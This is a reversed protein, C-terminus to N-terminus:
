GGYPNEGTDSVERVKVAGRKNEEVQQKQKVVITRTAEEHAHSLDINTQEVTDAPITSTTKVPLEEPLNSKDTHMRSPYKSTNSEDKNLRHYESTSNPEGKSVIPHKSIVIPSKSTNETAKPTEQVASSAPPRPDERKAIKTSRAFVPRDRAPREPAVRRSNYKETVNPTKSSIPNKPLPATSLSPPLVSTRTASIEEQLVDPPGQSNMAGPTTVTNESPQPAVLTKLEMEHSGEELPRQEAVVPTDGVAAIVDSSAPTDGVAAIVDSSAPLQDQARSPAGMSSTAVKTSRAFVPRDRAHRDPAVRRSSPAFDSVNAPTVAITNKSPSSSPPPSSSVLTPTTHIEEQLLPDNFHLSPRRSNVSDLTTVQNGDSVASMDSSPQPMVVSTLQTGFPVEEDNRRQAGDVDPTRQVTAVIESSAPPRDQAQADGQSAAGMSSKAIKSRAFVSRDRAPREPAVRRSPAFDGVNAPTVAISSSTGLAPRPIVNSITTNVHTVDALPPSGPALPTPPSVDPSRERSDPHADSSGEATPQGAEEHPVPSPDTDDDDDSSAPPRDQAQADGQSAAGVSSKVIKSPAFVPRDRAPREPAVRRSPAFDSVNAPTVAISSSTGLAPRPIVNSITTNVHTVDALPPSGPALPTPPSVDPSRERSDPHADSSGEATPQGAEEHPVPSPPVVAVDSSAPPRDQAQADGQSAAGMSSRATKSSAFVPRDRAPREPAVRRSPAFDGVNAPTVAISSSTGLAPRPIVNSITTNVHTVPRAPPVVHDTTQSVDPPRAQTTPPADSEDHLQRGAEEHPVPSPDTDDDDDSSAPLPDQAQADGQSAAGMSSRATKSSAFVPRDRMPREPAVRRSPAFDGVNAPTVAISSSTGLASRPIVKSITTNVLTVPHAPPVDHDTTQSVDPPRAQTTPPANSGEAPPQGAEETSVSSPPVVVVDSSAPLPDQAQADGQSAAGMSSKAIKSRAFVPRDRAPREPAVRRSPAFDGVNAPTVAISSSTGLAPRPIVNSITTNVHTVDAPPPSDPAPRPGPRVADGEEEEIHGPTQSPERQLQDAGDPAAEDPAVPEPTYYHPVDGDGQAVAEPSSKTTLARTFLPRDTSKREPAVRRSPAFDRINVPTVRVENTSEDEHRVDIRLPDLETDGNVERNLPLPTDEGRNDNSPTAGNPYHPKVGRRIRESGDIIPTEPDTDPTDLDPHSSEADDQSASDNLTTQGPLKSFLPRDTAPREPAVRRSPAFDRINVPTVRVENTSEDEHPVDIRLPDLETDGNVERNLPLPTDEGRNDNSPTAGNPYHPKVGRRIRESGDIIPTEPDTDPTDSDDHPSTEDDDQSASDKLTTQGNSFLPRDTAPREPAVRRSPAFDRINVPTVRVENTSEDEHPVDTHIPSPETDGDLSTRDRRDPPSPAREDHSPTGDEQEDPREKGRRVRRREEVDPTDLDDDDDDNHTASDKLTPQGPPKSFVPRETAMREPAMRRSPSLSDINFPTENRDMDIPQESKEDSLTPWRPRPPRPSPRNEESPHNNNTDDPKFGDEPDSPTPSGDPARELDVPTPSGDPREDHEGSDVFDNLRGVTLPRDLHATNPIIDGSTVLFDGPPNPKPPHYTGNNSIDMAYPEIQDNIILNKGSKPNKRAFPHTSTLLPQDEIVKDQDMVLPKGANADKRKRAFPHTSTLLPQDEIVEDQASLMTMMTSRPVKKVDFVFQVDEFASDMVDVINTTGPRKIKDKVTLNFLETAEKLTKKDVPKNKSRDIIVVNTYKGTGSGSGNGFKKRMMLLSDMYTEFDNIINTHTTETEDPAVGSILSRLMDKLSTSAAHPAPKKAEEGLLFNAFSKLAPFAAATPKNEISAPKNELEGHNTTGLDDNETHKVAETPIDGISVTPIDGISGIADGTATGDGDGKTIMEALKFGVFTLASSTMGGAKSRVTASSALLAMFGAANLLTLAGHFANNFRQAAQANMASALFTTTLALAYLFSM